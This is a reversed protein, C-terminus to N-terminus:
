LNKLRTIINIQKNVEGHLTSALQTISGTSRARSSVVDISKDFEDYIKDISKSLLTGISSHHIDFIINKSISLFLKRESTSIEAESTLKTALMAVNDLISVLEATNPLKLSKYESLMILTNVDGVSSLVIFIEPHKVSLLYLFLSKETVSELKSYFDLNMISGIQYGHTELVKHFIFKDVQSYANINLQGTTLFMVMSLQLREPTNSIIEKKAEKIISAVLPDVNYGEELIYYNSITNYTVNSVINLERKVIQDVDTMTYHDTGIMKSQVITMITSLALDISYLDKAYYQLYKHVLITSTVLTRLLKDKESNDNLINLLESLSLVSLTKLYHTIM